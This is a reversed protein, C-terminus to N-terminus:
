SSFGTYIIYTYFTRRYIYMYLYIYTYIYVYVHIYVFVEYLSVDKINLNSGKLPPFILADERSILMTDADFERGQAELIEDYTNLTAKKNGAFDTAFTKKTGSSSATDSGFYKVDYSRKLNINRIKRMCKMSNM